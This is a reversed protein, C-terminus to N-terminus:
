DQPAFVEIPDSVGRLAHSGLSQWPCDLLHAFAASALLPRELVKTLTEIRAVQNAAPGIATFQLRQPIGINGYTLDGVHLAIGCAVGPLGEQRRTTNLAELRKLAERSARGAAAAAERETFKATPFLALVADGILLLVEGGEEIVPGATAEFVSNLTALYDQPAMTEALRTSNRMDSYWIVSHITETDGRGIYGVL